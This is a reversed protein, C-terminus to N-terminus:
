TSGEKKEGHVLTVTADIRASRVRLSIPDGAAVDSADRV